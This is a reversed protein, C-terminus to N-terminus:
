GRPSIISRCLSWVILIEGTAGKKAPSRMSVGSIMKDSYFVTYKDTNFGFYKENKNKVELEGCKAENRWEHNITKKLVFYAVDGILMPVLLFLFMSMIFAGTLTFIRYGKAKDGYRLFLGYCIPQSLWLFFMLFATAKWCYELWPSSSLELNSIQWFISASYSSTFVFVGSFATVALGIVKFTKATNNRAFDLITLISSILISASFLIALWYTITNVFVNASLLLLLFISWATLSLIGAFRTLLHDNDTRVFFSIYERIRNEQTCSFILISVFLFAVLYSKLPFKYPILYIAIVGYVIVASDLKKQKFHKLFSRWIKIVEM